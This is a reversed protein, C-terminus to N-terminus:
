RGFGTRSLLPKVRDWVSPAGPQELADIAERIVASITTHRRRALRAVRAVSAPPLSISVLKSPARTHRM